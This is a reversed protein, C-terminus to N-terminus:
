TRASVRVLRLLNQILNHIKMLSPTLLIYKSDVCRIQRKVQRWCYYNDIHRQSLKQPPLLVLM